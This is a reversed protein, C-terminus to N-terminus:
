VQGALEQSGFDQGYQNTLTFEPVVGLTPLAPPVTALISRVIQWGGAFLLFVVWFLPSSVLRRAVRQLYPETTPGVNPMPIM